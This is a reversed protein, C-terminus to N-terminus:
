NRNKGLYSDSNKVDGIRRILRLSDCFLPSDINFNIEDERRGDNEGYEWGFPFNDRPNYPPSNDPGNELGDFRLIRDPIPSRRLYFM